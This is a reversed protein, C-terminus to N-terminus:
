VPRLKASITFVGGIRSIISHGTSINSSSRSAPASSFSESIAKYGVEMDAILMLKGDTETRRRVRLGRCLPLFDPYSEVDAVLDFM